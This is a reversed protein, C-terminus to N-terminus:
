VANPAEMKTAAVDPTGAGGGILDLAQISQQTRPLIGLRIHGM